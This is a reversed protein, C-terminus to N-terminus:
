RQKGGNQAPIKHKEIWGDIDSIDLYVKGGVKVIPIKRDFILKRLGGRSKGVLKATEPDSVPFLRQKIETM